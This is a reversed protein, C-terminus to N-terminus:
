APWSRLFLDIARTVELHVEATRVAAGEVAMVHDADPVELVDVGGAHLDAAVEADWAQEDALGGVLLQRAPNARIGAVCSGVVLLPTLWVAPWGHEAAVPAARTGLSKGVLLVPGPDDGVAAEVQARVRVDPDDATGPEWDLASVDHGHDELVRRALFFLPASSAAVRGPLLLARM